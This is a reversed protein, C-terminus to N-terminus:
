GNWTRTALTPRPHLTARSGLFVGAAAVLWREPDFKLPDTWVRPNRHVGLIGIDINTGKPIFYGRLTIDETLEQVAVAVACRRAPCSCADAITPKRPPRRHACAPGLRSM